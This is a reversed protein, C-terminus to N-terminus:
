WVKQACCYINCVPPDFPNLAPTAQSLHSLHSYLQTHTPPAYMCSTSRHDFPLFFRLVLCCFLCCVLCMLGFLSTVTCRIFILLYRRRYMITSKFIYILLIYYLRTCYIICEVLHPYRYYVNSRTCM